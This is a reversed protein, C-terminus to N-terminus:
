SFWLHIKGREADLNALYCLAIEPETGPNSVNRAAITPL